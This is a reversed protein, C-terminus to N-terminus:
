FLCCFHHDQWISCSSMESLLWLQTMTVKAKPTFCSWSNLSFSVEERFVLRSLKAWHSWCHPAWHVPWFICLVCRRPQLCIPNLQSMIIETNIGGLWVEKRSCSSAPNERCHRMLCMEQYEQCGRCYCDLQWVQNILMQSQFSWPEFAIHCANSNEPPLCRALISPIIQEDLVVGM